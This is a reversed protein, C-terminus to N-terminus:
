SNALVRVILAPMQDRYWARGLLCYGWLMPFMIICKKLLMVELVDSENIEIVWNAQIDFTREFFGWFLEDVQTIFLIANSNFLIQPVAQCSLIVSVGAVMVTLTILYHFLPVLIVWFRHVLLEESDLGMGYVYNDYADGAEAVVSMGLFFAMVFKMCNVTVASTKWPAEPKVTYPSASPDIDYVILFLTFVQLVGMFMAALFVFVPSIVNGKRDTARGRAAVVNLTWFNAALEITETQTEEEPGLLINTTLSREASMRREKGGSAPLPKEETPNEVDSSKSIKSVGRILQHEMMDASSHHTLPVGGRLLTGVEVAGVVLFITGWYCVLFWDLWGDTARSLADAHRVPPLKLQPPKFVPVKPTQARPEPEAQITSGSSAEIAGRQGQKGAAVVTILALLVALCINLRSVQLM